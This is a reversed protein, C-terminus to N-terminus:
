RAEGGFALCFGGCFEGVRRWGAIRKKGEAAEVPGAIITALAPVGASGGVRGGDLRRASVGHLQVLMLLWYM